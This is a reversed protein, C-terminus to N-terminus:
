VTAPRPSELQAVRPNQPAKSTLILRSANPRWHRLIPRRSHISHNLIREGRGKCRRARDHWIARRLYSDPRVSIPKQVCVGIVADHIQNIAKQEEVDASIQNSVKNIQADLNRVQEQVTNRYQDSNKKTEAFEQYDRLSKVAWYGPNEGAANAIAEGAIDTLEKKAAAAAAQAASKVSEKNEYAAKISKTGVSLAKILLDKATSM